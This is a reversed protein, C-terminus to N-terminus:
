IQVFSLFNSKGSRYKVISSRRWHETVCMLWLLSLQVLEVSALQSSTEKVLEKSYKCVCHRNSLSV